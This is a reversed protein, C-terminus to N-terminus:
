ILDTGREPECYGALGEALAELLDRGGVTEGVRILGWLNEAVGVPMTYDVETANEAPTQVAIRQLLKWAEVYLGKGSDTELGPAVWLIHTALVTLRALWEPPAHTTARESMGHMHAAVRLELHRREPGTLGRGESRLQGLLKTLEADLKM